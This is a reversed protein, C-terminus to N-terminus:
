LVEMQTLIRARARARAQLVSADIKKGAKKTRAVRWVLM